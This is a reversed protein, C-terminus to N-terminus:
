AVVRDPLGVHHGVQLQEAVADTGNPVRYHQHIRPVRGCRERADVADLLDIVCHLAARLEVKHHGRRLLKREFHREDIVEARDLHAQGLHVHATGCAAIGSVGLGNHVLQLLAHAEDLAVRQDDAQQALPEDSLPPRRQRPQRRGLPPRGHQDAAHAQQSPSRWGLVSVEILWM